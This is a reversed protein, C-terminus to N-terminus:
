LGIPQNFVHDAGEAQGHPQAEVKGDVAPVVQNGHHDLFRRDDGGYRRRGFHDTLGTAESGNGVPGHQDPLDLDDVYRVRSAGLLHNQLFLFFNQVQRVAQMRLHHGTTTARAIDFHDHVAGGGFMAVHQDHMQDHVAAVGHAGVQDVGHAFTDARQDFFEGMALNEQANQGI